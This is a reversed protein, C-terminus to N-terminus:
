GRALTFTNLKVISINNAVEQKSYRHNNNLRGEKDSESLPEDYIELDM